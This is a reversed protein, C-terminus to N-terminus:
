NSGPGKLKGVRNAICNGKDNVWIRCKGSSVCGAEKTRWNDKSHADMYALADKEFDFVKVVGEFVSRRDM